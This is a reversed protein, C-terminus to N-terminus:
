GGTSSKEAEIRNARCIPFIYRERNKEIEKCLSEGTFIGEPKNVVAITDKLRYRDVWTIGSDTAFGVNDWDSSKRNEIANKEIIDKIQKVNPKAEAKVEVRRKKAKPKPPILPIFDSFIKVWEEREDKTDVLITERRVIHTVSNALKQLESNSTEMSKLSMNFRYMFMNGKEDKHSIRVYGNETYEKKRDKHKVRNNICARVYDEFLQADCVSHDFKISIISNHRPIIWYYCPRGWVVKKGRYQNTYKVVEGKGTASDEQAGLLTGASDTDSKWLVLFFDGTNTDKYIDKCYCKPKNRNEATSDWPITLALPRGDVWEKILDFTENLGCGNIDEKGVKYLGCQDVNFFNMHGTDPM